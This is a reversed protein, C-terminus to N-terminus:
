KKKIYYHLFAIGSSYYALKKEIDVLVQLKIYIIIYICAIKYIYIIYIYYIIIIYLIIIYIIIFYNLTKHLLYLKLKSRVLIKLYFKIQFNFRYPNLKKPQM